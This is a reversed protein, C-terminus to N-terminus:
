SQPWPSSKPDSPCMPKRALLTWPPLNVASSPLLWSWTMFTGRSTFMALTLNMRTPPSAGGAAGAAGAAVGAAGAATSCADPLPLPPTASAAAATPAPPGLGYGPSLAVFAWIAAHIPRSASFRPSGL